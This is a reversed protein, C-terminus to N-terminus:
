KNQNNLYTNINTASVKIIELNKEVRYDKFAELKLPDNKQGITAVAYAVNRYFSNLLNLYDKSIEKPVHISLLSNEMNKNIRIFDEGSESKNINESYNKLSAFFDNSFQNVDETSPSDILNLDEKKYESNRINDLYRNTIETMIAIQTNTAKLGNDTMYGSAYMLNGVVDNTMNASTEHAYDRSQNEKLPNVDSINYELGSDEMAQLLNFKGDSSTYDKKKTNSNSFIIIAVIGGFIIVAYVITKLRNGELIKDLINQM